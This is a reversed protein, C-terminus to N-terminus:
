NEYKKKITLRIHPPLIFNWIITKFKGFITPKIPPVIILRLYQKKPKISCSVNKNEKSM